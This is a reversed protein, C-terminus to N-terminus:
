VRELYITIYKIISCEYGELDTYAPHRYGVTVDRGFEDKVRSYTPFGNIYTTTQPKVKISIRM